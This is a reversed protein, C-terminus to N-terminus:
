VEVGLAKAKIVYLKGLHKHGSPYFWKLHFRLLESMPLNEIGGYYALMNEWELDTVAQNIPWDPKERPTPIPVPMSLEFPEVKTQNTM